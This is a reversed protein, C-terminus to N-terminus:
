RKCDNEASLLQPSNPTLANKQPLSLRDLDAMVCTCYQAAQDVSSERAATRFCGNIFNRDYNSNGNANPDVDDAADQSGGGANANDGGPGGATGGLSGAGGSAGPPNGTSGGGPLPIDAPTGNTAPALSATNVPAGPAMAANSITTTITTNSTTNTANGGGGLKICGGLAVLALLTAVAVGCRAGTLRSSQDIM